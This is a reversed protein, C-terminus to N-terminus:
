QPQCMRNDAVSRRADDIRQKATNYHHQVYFGRNHPISRDITALILGVVVKKILLISIYDNVQLM